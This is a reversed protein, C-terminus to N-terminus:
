VDKGTIVKRIANETLRMCTRDVMPLEISSMVELFLEDLAQAAEVVQINEAQAEWDPFKKSFGKGLFLNVLIEDRRAKYQTNDTM